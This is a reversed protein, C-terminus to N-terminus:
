SIEKCKCLRAVLREIPRRVRPRSRMASYACTIPKASTTTCSSKTDSIAAATPLLPACPCRRQGVAATSASCSTTRRTTNWGRTLRCGAPASNTAVRRWVPRRSGCLRSKGSPFSFTLARSIPRCCHQLRCLRSLLLQTACSPKTKRPSLTSKACRKARCCVCASTNLSSVIPKKPPCGPQPILTVTAPRPRSETKPRKWNM